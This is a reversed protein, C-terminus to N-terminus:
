RLRMRTGSMENVRVTDGELSLRWHASSSLTAAMGDLLATPLWFVQLRETCDFSLIKRFPEPNGYGYHIVRDTRKLAQLLKKRTPRGVDICLPSRGSEAPVFLAPEEGVCVGRSFVLGPEYHLVYALLRVAFYRNSESPHCAVRLDHHRGSYDIRLRHLRGGL